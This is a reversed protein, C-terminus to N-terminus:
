GMPTALSGLLGLGALTAVFLPIDIYVGVRSRSLLLGFGGRDKSTSFLPLLARIVRRQGSFPTMIAIDASDVGSELLRSAISSVFQAECTNAYSTRALSPREEPGAVAYFELPEM